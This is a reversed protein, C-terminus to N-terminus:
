VKIGQNSVSKRNESNLIDTLLFAAISFADAKGRCYAEDYCPHNKSRELHFEQMKRFIEISTKIKKKM